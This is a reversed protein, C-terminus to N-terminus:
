SFLTQLATYQAETLVKDTYDGAGTLLKENDGAAPAPALGAEGADEATAGTMVAVTPSVGDKVTIVTQHTEGENDEWTWTMTNVGTESDYSNSLQASAGKLAGMGVLTQNVYSKLAGYVEEALM